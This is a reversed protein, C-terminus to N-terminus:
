ERTWTVSTLLFVREVNKTPRATQAGQLDRGRWYAIANHFIFGELIKNISLSLSWRVCLASWQAMKIKLHLSNKQAWTLSQARWRYVM